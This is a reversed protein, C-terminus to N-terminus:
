VNKVAEKGYEILDRMLSWVNCELDSFTGDPCRDKKALKAIEELREMDFPEAYGNRNNRNKIM